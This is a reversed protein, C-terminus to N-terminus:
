SSKSIVPEKITKKRVGTSGLYREKESYICGCYQQRYQGMEKSIRIGEGWGVRLDRYLFPVDFEASLENAIEIIRDHKQYRSYLLTTTFGDFKKEKAVAIAARLRMVYCHECRRAGRNITGQLFQELDYDDHVILPLEMERAYEKLTDLRKKYETYPHINPNYWFGTLHMGEERLAKVSYCACPGCCIHLLIKM